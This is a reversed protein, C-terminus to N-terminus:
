STSKKKRKRSNDGDVPPRTKWRNHIWLWQEPTKRIENEIAKTYFEAVHRMREALSGELTTTDLPEHMHLTYKKLGDRRLFVPYVVAKARVALMAPGMNVAATDNFFPLFVAEKRSTNHDALFGVIGENRMCELASGAAARHDVAVLKSEGRLERILDSVVPNKQKRAVSMTPRNATQSILTGMLEWSGFHATALVGSQGPQMMIHLLEPNDVTVYEMKFRDNLFIEMFSWATNYFSSKALMVAEKQSLNLHLKVREITAARRKRSFHWTIFGLFSGVRFTDQFDLKRMLRALGFLFARKIRSVIEFGKALEEKKPMLSDLRDKLKAREAQLVDETLEEAEIKYPEGFILTVKSFPLPLAFKDWSGFIKAKSCVARMPVIHAGARQALYLAGDKVEHLPGKPGDVSICAHVTKDRMIKAGCLLATVGGRSSSGRLTHIDQNQLLRALYEGDQSRSVITFIKWDGKKYPFGFVEGHWFTFVLPMGRKSLSDPADRNVQEYTLTSCWLRYFSGIFPGVLGPPIKM